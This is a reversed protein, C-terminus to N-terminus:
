QGRSGNIDYFRQAGPHLPISLGRLASGLTIDRGQPHGQKLLDRTAPSFLAETLAFARDDPMDSSVVFLAYVEITPIEAIGPYIGGAIRGPTLYPYTRSIKGAIEPEIALIRLGVPLLRTVAAMPAGAMMAFGDLEGDRMKDETFVPKLYQPRLDDETLGYAALVIDTVQRTGSGPEDVSIRKGRLDSFREIGADRRVVLQFKEAYLCAIARLKGSDAVAAFDREGRLAYAAIDAQVMGAEIEGTVVARANEVSGASNQAIAIIGHLPSGTQRAHLTIGSAILKGIPYYVGTSGGTGIRFTELAHAHDAPVFALALIAPILRCLCSLTDAISTRRPPM